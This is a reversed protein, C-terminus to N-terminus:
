LVTGIRSEKNHAKRSSEDYDDGGGGGDDDNHSAKNITPQVITVM